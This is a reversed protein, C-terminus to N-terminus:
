SAVAQYLIDFSTLHRLRFHNICSVISLKFHLTFLIPAMNNTFLIQRANLGRNDKRTTNLLIKSPVYPINVSRKCFKM